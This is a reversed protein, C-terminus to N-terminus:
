CTYIFYHNNQTQWIHKIKFNSIRYAEPIFFTMLTRLSSHVWRAVIIVERSLYTWQPLLPMAIMCIFLSKRMTNSAHRVPLFWWRILLVYGLSIKHRLFTGAINAQSFLCLVLSGELYNLSIGITYYQSVRRLSSPKLKPCLSICLSMVLLCMFFLISPANSFFPSFLYLNPLLVM